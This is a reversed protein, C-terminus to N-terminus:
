RQKIAGRVPLDRIANNLRARINSITDGNDPDVVEHLSADARSM